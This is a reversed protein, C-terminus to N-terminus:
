FNLLISHSFKNTYACYIHTFNFRRLHGHAVCAHCPSTRWWECLPHFLYTPFCDGITSNPLLSPVSCLSLVPTTEKPSIGSEPQNAGNWSCAPSPGQAELSTQKNVNRKKRWEDQKVYILERKAQTFHSKQFALFSLVCSQKGALNGGLVSRRHRGRCGAGDDWGVSGPAFSSFFVWRM